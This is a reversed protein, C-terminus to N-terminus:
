TKLKMSGEISLVKDAYSKDPITKLEYKLLTELTTTKDVINTINQIAELIKNSHSPGMMHFALFKAKEGKLKDSYYFLNDPTWKNTHSSYRKGKNILMTIKRHKQLEKTLSENGVGMQRLMTILAIKNNARDNIILLLSIRTALYKDQESQPRGKFLSIISGIAVMAIKTAQEMAYNYPAALISLFKTVYKLGPINETAHALPDFMITSNGSLFEGVGIGINLVATVTQNDANESVTEAAMKGTEEVVTKAEEKTAEEVVTKVIATVVVDAVVSDIFLIGNTLKLIEPIDIKEHNGILEFFFTVKTKDNEDSEMNRLVIIKSSLNDTKLVANPNDKVFTDKNKGYWIKEFKDLNINNVIFNPRSAHEIINNITLTLKFMGYEPDMTITGTKIFMTYNYKINNMSQIQSKLYMIHQTRNYSISQETTTVTQEDYIELQNPNNLYLTENIKLNNVSLRNIDLKNSYKNNLLSFSAM